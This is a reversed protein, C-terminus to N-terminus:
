HGFTIDTVQHHVNICSCRLFRKIHQMVNFARDAYTDQELISQSMLFWPKLRPKKNSGNGTKYLSKVIIPSEELGKEAKVMGSMGWVRRIATRNM